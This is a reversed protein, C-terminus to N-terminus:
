KKHYGVKYLNYFDDIEKASYADLLTLLERTFELTATGNATVINKDAVAQQHFYNEENAYKTNPYEKLAEVTNSTHKVDNLLGNIGLFLSADCIAGVVKDNALAEEVLPILANVKETKWSTGGILIVAAYDKPYSSIDYDIITKLGGFSLAPEKTLGLTKVCYKPKANGDPDADALGGNLSATIFASEWDAFESILVVLVEKKM